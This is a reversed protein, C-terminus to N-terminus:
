RRLYGKVEREVALLEAGAEAHGSLVEGLANQYPQWIMRMAPAKPLPVTHALQARFAALVEDQAIAPDAYAAPNAVVQRAIRARTIAADDSTLADMVAFAATKDHAYASMIVSEVGLFPAAPMGTASVTPLTVVKWPVGPAIDAVFWPGSIVTAAKGANFLSAVTPGQADDPAAGDAVLARAFQMAAAAEPTAIALNGDRDVAEGGFGHLWPAHGYLDANAYAVAFGGARKMAPALSVLADTTAPPSPVLDTRVFLVLSKTALPLGWLSGRYAMGAMAEPSFRDARADDVYFEIPEITGSDAWPGIRDDAYIFLDPGNGRPIASTLKDAFSDHPVAVLTLPQEPHGANWRAATAELAAREAGTYAHWLVVGPSSSSGCAAAAIALLAAALKV